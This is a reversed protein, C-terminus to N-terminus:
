QDISMPVTVGDDAARLVDKEPTYNYAGWLATKDNPRVEGARGLHLLDADV